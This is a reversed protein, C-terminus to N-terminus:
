KFQTPTPICNGCAISSGSNAGKKELDVKELNQDAIQTFIDDIEVEAITNLDWSNEFTLLDDEKEEVQRSTGRLKCQFNSLILATFMIFSLLYKM